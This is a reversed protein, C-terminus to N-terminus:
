RLADKYLSLLITQSVGVEVMRYLWLNSNIAIQNYDPLKSSGAIMVRSTAKKLNYYEGFTDKFLKSELEEKESSVFTNMAVVGKKTLIRKVNNMFEPTLFGDPIYNTSFADIFVMDYRDSASNKVYEVGDEIFVRNTNNFKYDFYEEAIPPIAPNVEVIHIKANPALINLAKPVSAGGLGIILIKRPDEVVFFASLFMQIYNFLVDKPNSLSMCSQLIAAPPELFSMCRLGKSDYVWIPGFENETHYSIESDDSQWFFVSCGLIASIILAIFLNARM